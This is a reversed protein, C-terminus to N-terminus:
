MCVPKAHSCGCSVIQNWVCVCECMCVPKSRALVNYTEHGVTLTDLLLLQAVSNACVCAACSWWCMHADMSLYMCPNRVKNPPTATCMTRLRSITQQQMHRMNPMKPPANCEHVLKCAKECSEDDQVNAPKEPQSVTPVCEPIHTV